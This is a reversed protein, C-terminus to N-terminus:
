SYLFPKILTLTGGEVRRVEARRRRGGGEGHSYLITLLLKPHGGFGSFTGLVEYFQPTESM